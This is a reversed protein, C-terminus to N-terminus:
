DDDRLIPFSLNHKVAYFRLVIIFAACTLLQAIEDGGVLGTLWYIIGGAICATAYIEKRFVLPEENIFIDRIVGGMAGTITGMIIAVWMPFGLMLTKYIGVDVFLALGIADFIYFTGEIKVLKKKLLVVVVFGVFTAVCYWPDLMWFPNCKLFVDRMTGGGIATVFGITYAGFWDFKKVAALRVGSIAYFLTAAIELFYEFTGVM